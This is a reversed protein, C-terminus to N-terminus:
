APHIGDFSEGRWSLPAGSTAAPAVAFELFPRFELVYQTRTFGLQAGIRSYREFLPGSELLAFNGKLQAGKREAAYAGCVSGFSRARLNKILTTDGAAHIYVKGDEAGLVVRTSLHPSGGDGVTGIWVTERMHPLVTKLQALYDRM